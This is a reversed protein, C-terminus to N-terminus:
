PIDKHDIVSAPEPPAGLIVNPWRLVAASAETQGGYAYLLMIGGPKISKQIAATYLHIPMMAPGNYAFQPFTNIVRKPEIGLVNASFEAHWATPANLAVCDIDNISLKAKALAGKVTQKLYYEATSRLVHTVPKNFSLRIHQATPSYQDEVVKFCWTGCTEGLHLSKSGLLGYGEKVPGVIFATSADGHFRMAANDDDLARSFLATAIVLVKNNLGSSVLGCATLLASMSSNCTAGINFAGGGIGLAQAIYGADGCGIHDDFMSTVILCDIDSAAVKAASLVKTAAKIGLSSASEHNVVVRREVSGLFPDSLYPQMAKDYLSLHQHTSFKPSHSSTIAEKDWWANTRLGEPLHIAVAQIGVSLM